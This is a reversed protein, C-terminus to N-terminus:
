FLARIAARGTHVTQATGPKRGEYNISMEINGAIRKTYELNWLYNKGPLLGDLLIYGVTTNAAGPYGKFSINDFTLKATISSNALTNFKLDLNIANNNVKEMSDIRNRKFSMVYGLTARINSRYIYSINPEAYYGAIKYNRNEFKSNSSNLENSIKRFVFNSVINRKYNVRIKSTLNDLQRAELGYALLTKSSARSHTFEFGWKSSTRNYFYTNSIFSNLSILTSDALKKEFPNFLFGGGSVVKKGIQLASSTNSKLLIKKFGKANATKIIAKPDLTFSYNFQLYNAKVYQNSPTFVRIYKKQDQFQAEEFENLEAVGNNNYDIWTYQGQGAPVEVYSFERKQEQGSGLEYLINGTFFGKFENVYYETRGLISQDSKQRSLGANDVILDRYTLNFKFQHKENKLLETSLTFNNSKDAQKLSAGEPLQDSRRYYSFGWKNLKQQNSKIYWEMISFAFSTAILTDAAKNTQRNYEGSYKFGTEMKWWQKLEKSINVAPRFFNGKTLADDISTYSLQNNLKWGKYENYLDLRQLWGSYNDSRNYNKIEARLFNGKNDAFKVAAHSIHEDAPLRDLALGWDRLFEVNRLRELAKFRQQVYEYGVESYMLLSRGALKLKNDTNQLSFKGAFGQDNNKDKSSFLNVDYTSTAVETIIKTKATIAYQVGLSVVQLKKPTVLLTVPEWDGLSNNNVDPQVWEFARGNSANLLQRYNGRGPGLYSFGPTYLVLAPDNSIVFISDHFVGNYLTDIKKYLIKGATLTDIYASQYLADAISDGIDALFQKQTNDLTQDIASNRADQNIYVGATVLLKKGLRIEDNVYIQSNLFNRDSYEFEVQIRSDKTIMRKPTFTIEATNYNIVYDQDEGRQQLIGDIFVRETGALIVFYLENNAGQLRYPGQNGELATIVNRTFKGKAIAGSALLSNSINKSIKNETLFSVGQLRKYFNLFYNKSQRIDIDGFNIQWKKKKVQLFIRDFDRLDQTNGEPQIPLNNDTIAATLELSDGIFGSLQLNMSSNVVADQSNGFSISRGFSGESQLGGFDMFPNVTKTGARVRPAAQAIFNYRVSDFNHRRSIANLRFPFVRYTAWVNKQGINRKWSLTARVEDLIYDEPSVGEIVLTNPVISLSDLTITGANTAVMKKRLNSAGPVNQAYACFLPLMLLLLLYIRQPNM